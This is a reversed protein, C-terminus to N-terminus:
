DGYEPKSEAQIQLSTFEVLARAAILGSAEHRPAREVALNPADDAMETVHGPSRTACTISGRGPRLRPV